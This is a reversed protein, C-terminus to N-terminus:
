KSVTSYFDYLYDLNEIQENCKHSDKCIYNGKKTYTGDGASKTTTLFMAVNDVKHCISCVNKIVDTSMVGYLGVLKQDLYFTIYKRQTGIDDWAFYTVDHFDYHDRIPYKIKKVKKFTKQIQKDTVLKFPIVQQKLERFIPEAKAKTLTIDFIKSEFENYKEEGLLPRIKESVLMENASLTNKDSVTKYVNILHLVQNKIQNFEYPQLM